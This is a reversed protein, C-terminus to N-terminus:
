NPLSNYCADFETVIPTYKNDKIALLSTKVYETNAKAEREEQKHRMKRAAPHTDFGPPPVRVTLADPFVKWDSGLRGQIFGLHLVRTSAYGTISEDFWPVDKFAMIVAPESRRDYAYGDFTRRSVKSWRSVDVDTSVVELAGEKLLEIAAQRGGMAANGATKQGAPGGHKTAFGPLVLAPTHRLTDRVKKLYTEDKSFVSAISASALSDSNMLLVLPTQVLMLARNRAGNVPLAAAAEWSCREGALVVIDLSCAREGLSEMEAHLQYINSVAADLSSGNMPAHLHSSVRGHVLPIYFAAAIRQGPWMTCQAKLIDRREIPLQVALTISAKDHKRSRVQDIRSIDPFTNKWSNKCYKM